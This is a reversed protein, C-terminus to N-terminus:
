STRWGSFRERRIASKWVGAARRPAARGRRRVSGAIAKGRSRGVIVGLEPGILNLRIGGDLLGDGVALPLHQHRHRGAGALGERQDVLDVPQHLRTDRARDQEQDIAPRESGLCDARERGKLGSGPEFNSWSRRPRCGAIGAPPSRLPSAKSGSPGQRGGVQGVRLGAM